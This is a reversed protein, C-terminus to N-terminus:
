WGDTYLYGHMAYFCIKTPALLPLCIYVGEVGGGRKSRNAKMRTNGEIGGGSRSWTRGEPVMVGNVSEWDVWCAGFACNWKAIWDNKIDMDAMRTCGGMCARLQRHGKQQQLSPGSSGKKNFRLPRHGKNQNFRLLQFSPPRNGKQYLRLRYPPPCIYVGGGGGCAGGRKSRHAKMKTSGEIGGGSRGWTHGEPVMVESVSERDVWRTGFTGICKSIGDNKIPHFKCNWCVIHVCFLISFFIFVIAFRIWM